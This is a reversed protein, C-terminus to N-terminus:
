DLGNKKTLKKYKNVGQFANKGWNGNGLTANRKAIHMKVSRQVLILAVLTRKM